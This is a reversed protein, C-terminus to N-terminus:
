VERRYNEAERRYNEAELGLEYAPSQSATLRRGELGRLRSDFVRLGPNGAMARSLAEPLTLQAKGVQALAPSALLIVLCLLYRFQQHLWWRTAFTTNQM